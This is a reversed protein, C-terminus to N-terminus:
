DNNDKQERDNTGRKRKRERWGNGVGPLPLHYPMLYTMTYSRGAIAESHVRKNREGQSSLSSSLFLVPTNEPNGGEKGRESKKERSPGLAAAAKIPPCVNRKQGKRKKRQGFSGSGSSLLTSAGRAKTKGVKKKKKRKKRDEQGAVPRRRGRGTSEKRNGGEGGGGGRNELCLFNTSRQRPSGGGEEKKKRKKEKEKGQPFCWPSPEPTPDLSLLSPFPPLRPLPPTRNRGKKREPDPFACFFL